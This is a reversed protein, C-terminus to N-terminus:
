DAERMYQMGHAGGAIKVTRWDALGATAATGASGLYLKAGAVWASPLTMSNGIDTTEAGGAISQGLTVVGNAAMHLRLQVRDGFDPAVALTAVSTSVGDDLTARYFSGTSDVTLRPTGGADDGAHALTAGALLTGREIFDLYWTSQQPDPIGFALLDAERTESNGDTPIHSSWFPKNKLDHGWVVIAQQLTVDQSQLALGYAPSIRRRLTTNGTSNNKLAAVVIWRDGEDRVFAFLGSSLNTFQGTDPWFDVGGVLSVTGGSLDLRFRVVATPTLIKEVYCSAVWVSSDDPVTTNIHARGEAVASADEIRDAEALGNAGEGYNPTLTVNSLTWGSMDASAPDVNTAEDELLLGSGGFRPLGANYRLLRGHMGTTTGASARTFTGTNGQRNTLSHDRWDWHFLLRSHRKRSSQGRVSLATSATVLPSM